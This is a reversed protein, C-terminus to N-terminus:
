CIPKVGLPVSLVAMCAQKLQRTCEQVKTNYECIQHRSLSWERPDVELVIPWFLLKLNDLCTTKM